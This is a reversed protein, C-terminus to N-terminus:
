ERLEMPKTLYRTVVVESSKAYGGQGALLMLITTSNVDCEVQTIYYVDEPALPRKRSFNAAPIKHAGAHRRMVKNANALSYSCDFTGASDSSVVYFKM